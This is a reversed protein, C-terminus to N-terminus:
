LQKYIKNGNETVDAETCLLSSSFDSAMNEFSCNAYQNRQPLSQNYSTSAPPSSGQPVSNFQQYSQPTLFQLQQTHVGVNQSLVQCMQLNMQIQMQLIEGEHKAACENEERM